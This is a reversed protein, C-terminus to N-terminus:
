RGSWGDLPNSTEKEGEREEEMIEIGRGRLYDDGIADCISARFGGDRGMTPEKEKKVDM